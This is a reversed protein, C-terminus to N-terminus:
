VRSRGKFASMGARLFASRALAAEEAAAAAVFGAVVAVDVTPGDWSTSSVSASINMM